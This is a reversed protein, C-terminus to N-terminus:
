ARVRGPRMRGANGEFAVLLTRLIETLQSRVEANLPALLEDENAVHAEIAAEQLERGEDTLAVVVGRGDTEDPTRVVLERTELREVLKSLGGSSLMLGRSLETPSLAYPEGRRRLASLANFESINLGFRGLELEVDRELYRAIRLIRGIVAMAETGLSPYENAWDRVIRDVHDEEDRAGPSVRGSPLDAPDRV